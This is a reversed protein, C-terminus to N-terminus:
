QPNSNAFGFELGQNLFGTDAGALSGGRDAIGHSAPGRDLRLRVLHGDRDLKRRGPFGGIRGAKADGNRPDPEGVRVWRGAGPRDLGHRNLVARSSPWTPLTRLSIRGCRAMVTPGATSPRATSSETRRRDDRWGSSAIRKHWLPLCPDTITSTGQAIEWVTGDGYPGGYIATGFLNGNADLTVGAYPEGGDAGNFAFSALTTLTSSGRAIEWVTGVGNAGGQATTGFLNGNADLTVGGEPSAGNAYNFTVLSTITNSGKAIEWVTGYGYSGGGSTTGYLNGNADITVGAFPQFGNSGNFSALTTITSSGKAIEWVTGRSNAGGGATTGFVNGNADFTVHSQPGAGNSGNFSALTTITGSGQAIEWVTGKNYAGGQATTGFLDGNADLTVGGFPQFGNSGNFSAITTITSSGKAIEWVTGGGNTNINSTTGFLDGNADLTVGATPDAGDAGNFSAITTLGQGWVSAPPCAIAWLLASGLGISRFVSTRTM